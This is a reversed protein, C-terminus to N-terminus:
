VIGSSSVLTLDMFIFSGRTIICLLVPSIISCEGMSNSELSGVEIVKPNDTRRIPCVAVIILLTDGRKLIVAFMIGVIVVHVGQAFPAYDAGTGLEETREITALMGGLNCIIGFQGNM